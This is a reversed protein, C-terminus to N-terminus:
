LVDVPRAPPSRFRRLRLCIRAWADESRAAGSARRRRRGRREWGGAPCWGNGERGGVGEPAAEWGRSAEAAQPGGVVM